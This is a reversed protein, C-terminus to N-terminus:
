TLLFCVPSRRQYRPLEPPIQMSFGDPDISQDVLTENLFARYVVKQYRPLEPPIQM